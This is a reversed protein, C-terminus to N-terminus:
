PATGPSADALALALREELRSEQDRRYSSSPSLEVHRGNAPIVFILPSDQELYDAARRVIQPDDRLHGIAANCPFCLIGRIAGSAHEHDVHVAAAQQCIACRGGQQSVREDVDTTSLGYKASLNRARDRQSTCARCRTAVGDRSNKRQPWKELPLVQECGRCFKHGAPVDKPRTVHGAAERKARYIDAFCERCYTQRGDPMKSHAPFADLRKVTTCRRCWKEGEAVAPAEALKRPRRGRAWASNCRRCWAQLGDKARTNRAFLNVPL